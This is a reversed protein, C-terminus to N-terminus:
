MNQLLMSHEWQKQSSKQIQFDINMRINFYIQSHNILDHLVLFIYLKMNMFDTACSLNTLFYDIYCLSQEETM